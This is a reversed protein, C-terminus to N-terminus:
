SPENEVLAKCQRVMRIRNLGVAIRLMGTTSDGLTHVDNNAQFMARCDLVFQKDNISDFIIYKHVDPSYTRIDPSLESQVTQIFPGGGLQFFQGLSRALTGKGTRVTQFCTKSVISLSM